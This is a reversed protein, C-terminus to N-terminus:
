SSLYLAKLKLSFRNLKKVRVYASMELMNGEKLKCCIERWVGWKRHVYMSCVCKYIVIISLFPNREKQILFVSNTEEKKPRKFESAWFNRSNKQRFNEKKFIKASPFSCVRVLQKRPITQVHALSKIM